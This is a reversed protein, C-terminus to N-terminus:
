KFVELLKEKTNVSDYSIATERANKAIKNLEDKSLKEYKLIQKMLDKESKPKFFFGNYNNKVYDTPGYNKSAIVFTECAMAELGVLGLSESKRYTPFVFIDLSNYINVLEDQACMNRIELYKRINLKDILSHMENEESGMGIILFRKNGIQNSKELEKIMKLFTDYGKDKEIRSIYGIYKYKSSLKSEKKAKSKSIKKFKSTNVGGSPYVYVMDSNLNYDELMIKKYYNSPVIIKDAYKIFKRSRKINKKEFDFDAVVDNGHANLILKTNKSTLKPIIIGPTSHSIYHVYIYDYNNFIGKLTGKMYFTIYSYLKRIFSTEKYKAVVDIEFSNDELIDKTNKVFSGYFKYKSSPYMNSVLLIRKKNSVNNNKCLVFLLAVYISVMPETIVHGTILSTLIFLIISFKYYKDLKNNKLANIILIMYIVFGVIGISYFIDFIDIEIDKIAIIKSIGLGMFKGSVHSSIYKKNVKNLYTLRKSFIINDIGKLSILDSISDVKYYDLAVQLNKYVSTKPFILIFVFTFVFLLTIITLGIKFSLKKYNDIFYKIVFYMIVIITGLLLTKTGILFVAMLIELLVFVKLLYNKSNKIYNIIIPMLCFIIASLENGSYFLGIYGGKHEFSKYINYGFGFIYPIIILNLYILYMILIFKDDIKKNEYYNFFVILFPLYFIKIINTIESIISSDTFIGFYSIALLVYILFMFIYKKSINNKYLYALILLFFLGRILTGITVFGINNRIQISTIVDFIPQLFLFVIILNNLRKNSMVIVKSINYCM